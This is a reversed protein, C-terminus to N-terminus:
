APLSINIQVGRRDDISLQGGLENVRERMGCIGSGEKRVSGNGDDSVSFHLRKNTRSLKVDCHKADAHRIVNTISEKLLMTLASEIRPNLTFDDIQLDSAIGAAELARKANEVEGTLGVTRYGQITARVQQLAERSISEIDELEKVADTETTTMLKKALKSKLITLSLTHGLVDHLDRAIREREAITALRQIEEQKIRLQSNARLTETTHLCFGGFVIVMIITPAWLGIDLGFVWSEIGIVAVIGVLSITAMQRDLVLGVLSAVYAFYVCMIPVVTTLMGLGLIGLLPLWTFRRDLWFVSFYLPFFLLLSGGVMLWYELSAGRLYASLPLVALPLLCLYTTWGQITNKPLLFM